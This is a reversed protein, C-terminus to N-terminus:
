TRSNELFKSEQSAIIETNEKNSSYKHSANIKNCHEASVTFVLHIYYIIVWIEALVHFLSNRKFLFRKTKYKFMKNEKKQSQYM